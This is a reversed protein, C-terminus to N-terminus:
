RPAPNVTIVTKNGATNTTYRIVILRGRYKKVSQMYHMMRNRTHVASESERYFEKIFQDNIGRTDRTLLMVQALDNPIADLLMVRASQGQEVAGRPKCTCLLFTCAACLVM